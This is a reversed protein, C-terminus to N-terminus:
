AKVVAMMRKFEEFNVMGDGDSDVLRIMDRCEAAAPRGRLGLSGLVTGLEEASILGDKNGDFVDFAEKLDMEEGEEDEEEEEEAGAGDAAGASPPLLSTKRKKPISDYLERFEHIDILGDSNADVRAVMAAAEAASVAIGLRKLSEELEGATIFGDGDHDFTSFVIGLDAERDAPAPRAERATEEVKSAKAEQEGHHSKEQEGGDCCKKPNRSSSSALSFLACLGGLLFLLLLPAM